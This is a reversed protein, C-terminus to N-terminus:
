CIRDSTPLESKVCIGIKDLFRANTLKSIKESFSEKTNTKDIVVSTIM